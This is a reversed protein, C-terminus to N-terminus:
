LIPMYKPIYLGLIDTAEKDGLIRYFGTKKINPSDCFVITMINWCIAPAMRVTYYGFTILTVSDTMHKKFEIM